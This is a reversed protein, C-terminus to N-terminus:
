VIYLIPRLLSLVRNVFQGIRVVASIERNAVGALYEERTIAVTVAVTGREHISCPIAM